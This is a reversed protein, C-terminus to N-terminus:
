TLQQLAHHPPELSTSDESFNPSIDGVLRRPNRTRTTRRGGGEVPRAWQTDYNEICFGVKSRTTFGAIDVVKQGSGVGVFDSILRRSASTWRAAATCLMPCVGSRRSRPM